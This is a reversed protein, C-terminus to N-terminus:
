KAAQANNEKPATMIQAVGTLLAEAQPTFANPDKSWFNVTVKQGKIEAPVHLSSKAGRAIMQEIIKGHAKSLDNNVVVKKGEAYEALSEGESSTEPLFNSLSIPRPKDGSAKKQAEVIQREVEKETESDDDDGHDQQPGRSSPGMLEVVKGDKVTTVCVRDVQPVMTRLIHGFQRFIMPDML